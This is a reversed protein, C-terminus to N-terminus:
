QRGWQESVRFLRDALFYLVAVTLILILSMATAEDFADQRNFIIGILMAVTPQFPSGLLQPTVYFGLASLFVLIAGALMGPRLQPLVVKRLVLLPRAGLTQAARVQSLDLRRVSAYVPLIMSPLMVHIMAPYMATSTQYISLPQPSFGLWGLVQYIIGTPLYILIWGYTRVLLSSWLIALISVLLIAKVWGPALGLGLAYATGVVLTVVTVVVAILGTTQLSQLWLPDDFVTDVVGVGHEFTTWALLVLPVLLFLGLFVLPLGLLWAAGSGRTLFAPLVSRRHAHSITSAESSASLSM